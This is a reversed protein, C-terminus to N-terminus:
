QLCGQHLWTSVLVRSVGHDLMAQVDAQHRIGGGSILQLQPYHRSIQRCLDLAVPGQGSGAASTDLVILHTCGNAVLQQVLARPDDSPFVGQRARLKGHVLDLSFVAQGAKFGHFVELVMAWDTVSESAVIVHQIGIRHWYRIEDVTQVGADLWLQCGANVLQNIVAHQPKTGELADLDALYYESIGLQHGLSQTLIVPNSAEDCWVSSLPQYQSRVGGRAHVVQGNMLDIVPLVCAPLHTM